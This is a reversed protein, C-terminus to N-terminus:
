ADHKLPIRTEDGVVRLGNVPLEVGARHVYGARDDVVCELRCDYGYDFFGLVPGRPSQVM